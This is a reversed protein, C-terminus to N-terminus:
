PELKVFELLIEDACLSAGVTGHLKEVIAGAKHSRIINQMKMAEVVCLEQGMEVVDGEKVAFSVLTGPMPSLVFDGLDLPVPEMMHCTLQYEAPSMVLVDADAGYMTLKLAGIEDEGHVQLVRSEGAIKCHAFDSSPDYEFATISISQSDNVAAENKEGHKMLRTVNVAAFNPVSTTSSSKPTRVLYADGFMGGLCVVVDDKGGVGVVTVRGLTVARREVIERAIVVLECREVESLCELGGVFGDPYNTEIFSTPTYGKVFDPNRLVDRVFPINHRVTDGRILYRDLAMGLGRIAAERSTPSYAIIKSLIPDYHPTVISGPVVGSDIRIYCNETMAVVRVDDVAGGFEEGLKKGFVAGGITGTVADVAAGVVSGMVAGVSEYEDHVSPVSASDKVCILSPPEEYKVLPGTSPLFGRYPDEAYIRAEVAHGFFKVNSGDEGAGAIVDKDDNGDDGKSSSSSSSSSSSGSSTDVMDLYEQPIGRGAAVELMGYVLDITRGTHHGDGSIMETVPHEVQLRTNMELFYFNQQEDVLFEVTGASEYGVTRVLSKVQKIMQQRTNSKLHPSPSEEIIKQNRRQISCEREVFCLIDLKGTIPNTGSLVQIEIHHPNVIYKEVLLRDDSFYSKAESQSLRYGDRVDDDTYCIRMGKGGGGASAKIMVPYGISNAIEIAHETSTVVGNYGPITSVGAEIALLKSQIKDGLSRIAHTSPGIFKVNTQQHIGETQESYVVKVQMSNIRDAFDCNESLFGYGPHVGQAGSTAIASKVAEM